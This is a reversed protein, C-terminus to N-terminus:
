RVKISIYFHQNITSLAVSGYRTRAYSKASHLLLSYRSTPNSLKVNIYGTQTSPTFEISSGGVFFQVQNAKMHKNFSDVVSTHGPSFSNNGEIMNGNVLFQNFTLNKENLVKEFNTKIEDIRDGAFFENWFVGNYFDRNEPGKGLAFEYLLIGVGKEGDTMFDNEKQAETLQAVNPNFGEAVSKLAFIMNLDLNFVLIDGLM